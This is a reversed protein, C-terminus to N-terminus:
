GRKRAWCVPMRGQAVVISEDAAVTALELALEDLQAEDTIGHELMYSRGEFFTYEWVRKEEGRLYAPHIIAFQPADLGCELMLRPLKLGTQYDVGRHRGLAMLLDRMLGYCGTSPFSTLGTVDIDFCIVLGGPMALAAMERIADVPRQLHCLLFRCHAVDFANRALGTDYASSEIFKVNALGESRVLSEAVAIQEASVDVASVEGTPGIARAFWRATNGTGCGIDVVRAGLPIGIDEMIRWAPPGYVTDLLALRSAGAAGTALPYDDGVRMSKAM